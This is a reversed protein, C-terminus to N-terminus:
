QAEYGEAEFFLVVPVTKYKKFRHRERSDKGADEVLTSEIYVSPPIQIM